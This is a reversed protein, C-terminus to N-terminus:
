RVDGADQSDHSGCKALGRAIMYGISLYTIYRLADLASFPDHSGQGNDGVVLATVAVALVAVVYVYLETTKSSAKTEASVRNARGTSVAGLDANDYSSASTSTM